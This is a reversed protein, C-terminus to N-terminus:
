DNKLPAQHSPSEPHLRKGRLAALALSLDQGCVYVQHAARGCALGRRIAQLGAERCRAALEAASDGATAEALAALDLSGRTKMPNVYVKLIALRGAQDPVPVEVHYDFRGPRCLAPDIAELRNTTAVVAIRGRAELGDLLVLLQALVQV